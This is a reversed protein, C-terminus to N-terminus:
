SRGVCEILKEEKKMDVLDEISPGTQLRELCFAVADVGGVVVGHFDCKFDEWSRDVNWRDCLSACIRGKKIKTVFIM